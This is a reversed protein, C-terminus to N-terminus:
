VELLETEKEKGIQDIEIISNDTLKQLQNTARKFEDQSVQKGSELGKLENVAEHRINRVAIKRDEVRKRVVKILERRREESPQPINIRIITGDSTPTIGLDSKMIAKEIISVASKDWPQIVLLRVEPASISALQNLPTPVGAYDVRIHELLAPSARGTRLTALDKRLGTTSARMKDETRRLIDVVM